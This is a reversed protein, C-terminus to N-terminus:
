GNNYNRLVLNYRTPEGSSTLTYSFEYDKIIFSSELISDNGEYDRVTEKIIVATNVLFGNTLKQKLEKSIVVISVVVDINGNKTFLDFEDLTDLLIGDIILNPVEKQAIYNSM